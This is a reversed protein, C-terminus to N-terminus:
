EKPLLTIKVKGSVMLQDALTPALTALNPSPPPPSSLLSAPDLAARLADEV